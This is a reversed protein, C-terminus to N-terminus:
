FQGPPPTSRRTSLLGILAAAAALVVAVIAFYFGVDWDQQDDFLKKVGRAFLYLGVGSTLASLAAGGTGVVPMRLFILAAALALVCGALLLPGATRVMGIGDDDDFDHDYWSTDQSSTKGGPPTADFKAEWTHLDAEATTGFFATSFNALPVFQVFLLFVFALGSLGIAAWRM